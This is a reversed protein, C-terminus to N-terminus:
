QSASWKISEEYSIPERGLIELISKSNDSYECTNNRWMMKYQESAAIKILSKPASLLIVRKGRNQAYDKVITGLTVKRSGCLDFIQNDAYELGNLFCEAVDRVDVPQFLYNKIDPFVLFPAQKILPKLKMFLLQDPGLIFSPRLIVHPLGSKILENEAMLKTKHYKSPAREDVGLASMHAVKEIQFDMLVRYLVKSYEYHVKEFTLGKSKEEQIIGILHIVYKPNIEKLLERLEDENSFDQVKYAKVKSGFLAEAKSPKRVPLHLQYGRKLALAVVYRGVFGTSGTILLSKMQRIKGFFKKIKIFKFYLKVFFQERLSLLREIGLSYVSFNIQKEFHSRMEYILCLSTTSTTGSIGQKPQFSPLSALQSHKKRELNVISSSL